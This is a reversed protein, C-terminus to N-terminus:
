ITLDQSIESKDQGRIFYKFSYFGNYNFNERPYVLLSVNKVEKSNMALTGKPAMSFGLLNYFQLNNSEGLNTIKVNFVAPRDVGNIIVGKSDQQEVNLNIAMLLPFAFTLFMLALFIKKM